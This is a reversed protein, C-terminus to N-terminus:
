RKRKKSNSRPKKSKSKREHPIKKKPKERPTEEGGVLHWSCEQTILDIEKLMVFLRDGSIYSKGRRSGVLKLNGEDYNYYDSELESVHLFSELMFDLVELFIGFPKIRTVVAEYQRQPDQAYLKQLLRLKKLVIVSSEAKASIREQESCEVSVLELHEKEDSSGFLIRHVVLDVYRRIPSTFHCYHTLGLGYHGINDASYIALRMRRIYSTALYQGYPTQLAESFLDQLERSTPKDSVNYGFARVLNAFDKMNEEAPEEHIRYTLNKGIGSLHQAVVENAKLMFEEVLQHTIDYEVREMKQPVGESDVLVILDTLAFEISGREHRKKKLLGCLEVMLRLTPLHKSKKLGDLVLKAERYTFRKASKIVGRTTRYNLLNGDADFTMLVSATLRNVGEKLSCLNNSLEGPLMPVVTGPFYTSNCRNKAEKDLASGTKVYHSVDAIHVGLHYHGTSDRTLSLADDYDKATDPDITFTEIERFDERKAIEGRAVQTGFAAAEELAQQPFSARLEFEEIAAPIDCKPDAIHGIIHSLRTHTETEKSGWEMVEMVVRDGVTLNGSLPRELIVKQALGLLPAYVLIDGHLPAETVIGALHTRGRTLISVVKGEPGKESYVENNIVIEVTDGDVANMTLHKPIFVDEPFQVGDDARVFGFGRQHVRIVGTVVDAREQKWIYTNHAVTVKGEELLHNLVRHLLPAHIEVVNLRQILLQATMPKYGKGSMFQQVTRLMNQFFKDAKREVASEKSKKEKKAM